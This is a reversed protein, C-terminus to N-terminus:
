DPNGNADLLDVVYQFIKILRQVRDSGRIQVSRVRFLPLPFNTLGGAKTMRLSAFSGM